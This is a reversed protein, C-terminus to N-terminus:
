IKRLLGDLWSVPLVRKLVAFLYTPFTVYYRIRPQRSELAHIVKEAVAQAPLTFPAASGEKQLRIEIADYSAKHFSHTSDINKKYLIFANKRFDSLIPGPEILSIHINSGHLELRLTDALGELAFKSANYAGRYKMAVLGLISSNYIIRGYGQKRMVPILLNTLEHTGFLNTEFQFRLAERSLDEVAGPQGFAANNFLADIKGGTLELAQNVAQRISSSDALDLQLSTFGECALRDVDAPNRATAIVHHGRKKLAHAGAYGIGSSCGTILITKSPNM